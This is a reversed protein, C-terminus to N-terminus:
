FPIHAWENITEQIQQKERRFQKMRHGNAGSPHPFGSVYHPHPLKQEAVLKSITQDVTKGLPIVLAPQDIQSIEIPFLHYAYHRLLPSHQVQPQYGTYNKDNVFVPYKIMSTTHLLENNEEFLYSSSPINLIKPIHCQDLMNILNKRMTGSFRAAVKANYLSNELSENVARSNVFEMFATKMQQWGPTIGVIVIKAKKNVYENHPAYYMKIGAEKELLFTATLLDEKAFPRSPQLSKIAPLFKYLSKYSM